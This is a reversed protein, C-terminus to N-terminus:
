RVWKGSPTQNINLLNWLLKFFAMVSDAFEKIVADVIKGLSELSFNAAKPWAEKAAELVRDKSNAWCTETSECCDKVIETLRPTIATSMAIMVFPFLSGMGALMLCVVTVALFVKTSAVLGNCSALYDPKVCTDKVLEFSGM